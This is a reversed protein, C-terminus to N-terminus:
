RPIKRGSQSRPPSRGGWIGRYSVRSAGWGRPPMQVAAERPQGLLAGWAVPSRAAAPGGRTARLGSALFWFDAPQGWSLEAPLGAARWAGAIAPIKSTRLECGCGELERSQAVRGQGGCTDAGELADAKPKSDWALATPGQRLQNCRCPQIDM